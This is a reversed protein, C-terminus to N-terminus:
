EQKSTPRRTSSCVNSPPSTTSTQSHRTGLASSQILNHAIDTGNESVSFQRRCRLSWAEFPTSHKNEYLYKLLKEDGPKEDTGWGLFSKSTSMRAACIIAEDSGWYEVLEVYGHDLVNIREM